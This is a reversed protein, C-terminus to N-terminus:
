VKSVYFILPFVGEILSRCVCRYVCKQIWHNGYCLGSTRRELKVLKLLNRILNKEKRNKKKFICFVCFFFLRKILGSQLFLSPMIFSIHQGAEELNCNEINDAKKKNNNNTHTKTLQISGFQEILKTILLFFFFFDFGVTTIFPNLALSGISFRPYSSVM